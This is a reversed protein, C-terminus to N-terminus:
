AFNDDLRNGAGVLYHYRFSRRHAHKWALDLVNDM